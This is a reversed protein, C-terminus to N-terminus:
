VAPNGERFSGVNDLATEVSKTAQSYKNKPIM